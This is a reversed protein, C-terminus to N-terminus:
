DVVIAKYIVCFVTGKESASVKIDIIERNKIFENIEKEMNEAFSTACTFIKVRTTM